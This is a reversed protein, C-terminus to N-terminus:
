NLFYNYQRKFLKTIVFALTMNVLVNIINLIYYLSIDIKINLPINLCYLALTFLSYSYYICITICFILLWDPKSSTKKTNLIQYNIRDFSLFCSVAYYFVEVYISNYKFKTIYFWDIYQFILGIIFVVVYKNLYKKNNIIYFFYLMLGYDIIEHIDNMLMYNFNFGLSIKAYELLDNSAGVILVILYIRFAKDIKHYLFLLPIIPLLNSFSSIIFLTKSLLNM